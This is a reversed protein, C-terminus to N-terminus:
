AIFGIDRLYNDPYSDVRTRSNNLSNHLINMVYATRKVDTYNALDGDLINHGRVREPRVKGVIFGGTISYGPGPMTQHRVDPEPYINFIYLGEEEEYHDIYGAKLHHLLLIITNADSDSIGDVTISMYRMIDTSQEIVVPADLAILLDLLRLEAMNLNVWHVRTPGEYSLIAEIIDRKMRAQNLYYMLDLYPLFSEISRENYTSNKLSKVLDNQINLISISEEFDSYDSSIGGTEVAGFMTFRTPILDLIDVDPHIAYVQYLFATLQELTVSIYTTLRRVYVAQSVSTRQIREALSSDDEPRKPM